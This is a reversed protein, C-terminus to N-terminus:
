NRDKQDADLLGHQAAFVAAESRRSLGLKDLIRSVHNRATNESIILKEAIEKNTMGCAVLEVVERERESLTEVAHASEKQTLSALREMVQKTVSPDLLSQGGAVAMIASLLESRGANKLLYGSAGAMIAAMVAEEEGFSTLMLVRVDPHASKILRCAETGSMEGMRVDMLVVDPPPNGIAQIADDGSGAEAIVELDEEPELIARLGTRVVEHDDVVMIRINAM